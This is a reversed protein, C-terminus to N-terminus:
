RTGTLTVLALAASVDTWAIALGTVRFTPAVMWFADVLHAFLVIAALLRLSRSARKARKSLLVLFPIAFQFVILFIAIWRWSTQLRPLYWVIENPLNESWIILYQMFVLYAWTMVFMLLLNGLDQFVNELDHVRSPIFWVTCVIAFALAGLMQSVGAVIGFATSYWLPTLSMIWDVASLTVTLGYLMLGIASITRLRGAADVGADTDPDQMRASSSRRLLHSLALWVVFYIAARVYFFTPELYWRKAELLPSASVEAPRAWIYLDSLGFWLPIWLLLAVPLMRVAADLAPRILEGWAGGTLNHVMLIAMSGLPIGVLFWWVFLYSQFATMRDLWATVLFILAGIAGVIWAGRQTRKISVFPSVTM